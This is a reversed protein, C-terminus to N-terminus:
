AAVRRRPLGAGRVDLIVGRNLRSKTSAFASTNLAKVTALQTNLCAELTKPECLYDLFGARMAEAPSHMRAVSINTIASPGLRHRALALAFDPVAMNIATENLGIRYPGDVGIRIDSAMMLFAGMPYAHGTCVTVVPLPHELIAMIADVGAQLQTLATAEDGSFGKLDFGASFLGERGKLIVPLSKATAEEFVARIMKLTQTDLANVKGDDLTLWGLEDHIDFQHAM